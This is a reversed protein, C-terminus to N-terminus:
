GRRAKRGRKERTTTEGRDRESPTTGTGDVATTTQLPTTATIERRRGWAICGYFSRRGDIGFCYRPLAKIAM